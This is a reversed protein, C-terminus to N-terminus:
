SFIFNASLFQLPARFLIGLIRLESFPFEASLIYISIGHEIISIKHESFPFNRWHCPTHVKGRNEMGFPAIARLEVAVSTSIGCSIGCDSFGPPISQYDSASCLARQYVIFVCISGDTGQQEGHGNRDLSGRKISWGLQQVNEVRNM